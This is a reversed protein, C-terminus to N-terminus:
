LQVYYFNFDTGDEDSATTTVTFQGAQATVTVFGTPATKPYVNIMTDVNVSADVVVFTNTGGTWTFTGTITAPTYFEMNGTVPNKGYVQGNSILGEEVWGKLREPKVYTDM